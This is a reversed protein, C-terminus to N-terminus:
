EALIIAAAELRHIKPLEPLDRTVKIELEPKKTSM